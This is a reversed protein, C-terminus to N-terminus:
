TKFIWFACLEEDRQLAKQGKTDAPPPQGNLVFSRITEARHRLVYKEMQDQSLDLCAWEADHPAAM